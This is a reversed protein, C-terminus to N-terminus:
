SGRRPHHRGGPGMENSAMDAALRLCYPKAAPDCLGDTRVLMRRAIQRMVQEIARSRHGATPGAGRVTAEVQAVEAMARQDERTLRM